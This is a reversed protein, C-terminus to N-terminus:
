MINKLQEMKVELDSKLEIDVSKLNNDRRKINNISAIKFVFYYFLLFSFNLILYTIFSNLDINYSSLQNNAVKVADEPIISEQKTSDNTPEVVQIKEQKYTEENSFRNKAPESNEKKTITPLSSNFLSKTSTNAIDIPKAIYGRIDYKYVYYYGVTSLLLYVVFFTGYYYKRTRVIYHNITEIFDWEMPTEWWYIHFLMYIFIAALAVFSFENFSFSSIIFFSVFIIIADFLADYMSLWRDHAIQSPLIVGSMLGNKRTKENVGISQATDSVQKPIAHIETLFLPRKEKRGTDKGKDSVLIDFDTTLPM